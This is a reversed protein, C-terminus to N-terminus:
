CVMDRDLNGRDKWGLIFAKIFEVTQNFTHTLPVGCKVLAYGYERREFELGVERALRSVEDFDVKTMEPM